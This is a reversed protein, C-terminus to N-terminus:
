MQSPLRPYLSEIKKSALKKERIESADEGGGDVLLGGIIKRCLPAPHKEPSYEDMSPASSIKNTLVNVELNPQVISM